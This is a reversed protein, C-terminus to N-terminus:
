KGVVLSVKSDGTIKAIFPPVHNDLFQPMAPLAKLLISAVEPMTRSKAIIIFTRVGAQRLARVENPRYRIREDKTVVVWGQQGVETLWHDDREDDVFHDAHIEVRLNAQRLADTIISSGLSRDIFFVYSGLSSQNSPIPM